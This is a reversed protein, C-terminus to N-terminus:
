AAQPFAASGDDDRTTIEELIAEAKDPPLFLRTRFSIIETFCGLSKFWDLSEVPYGRLELRQQDNVRVKHLRAGPLGGVPAGASADAAAITDCPSLRFSETIGFADLLKEMARDPVIRGLISQGGPGSVRWVRVDDEPLKNWVPLLLGTAIHITQIEHNDRESAVEAQWLAQFSDRDIEQWHSSSLAAVEIRESGTPRILRWVPVLNGDEDLTPWSPVRLAIRKSRKNRLFAMDSSSEWMRMLPEFGTPHRRIHLKLTQLRTEAGTRPDRRLPRDDLIHIEEAVITEVGQDLTGAQRAAEVRAEILSNFEDFIAHQTAIRLALLRNLWRHIPPLRELLAGSDPDTLTLGTMATFESMTTSTLKGKHLRHYWNVLAERAHDSELNDASSFFHRSGAQRQGQTLAGLSDLKRAIPAIFRREGPCDTFVPRFKPATTQNSRHERGNRQLFAPANWGPETGFAVRRKGASKRGREAHLSIGVGGANTLVLIDKEADMFANVEAITARASRTQLKQRGDADLVIRRSRGSVEAVRDAGFHHIIADLAWPVPPMACLREILTERARIADTCLVPQGQADVMMESRLEGNKLRVPRMMRTPFANRLYDIMNERPSLDLDLNAREEADLEALRRNLVAEGTTVLDVVAANGAAIEEEIGAILTPLKMSILLQSFFRQKASEFRSLAAGRARGNLTKGTMRDVVNAAKFAEQLNAHIIAWADAYSDYIRIQEPTLEHIIPDFEVGEYSLSRATYLGLAKADRAVVEMAAVGGHDMAKMFADRDRFATGPGWLGLRVAYCLNAPDTAGTASSLLVRARPLANQLRVGALGQESGKSVGFDTETGAANGLAHAEDIAIIGDFDEGLWDLLQILRSKKQDQASRLTAFSLFLIGSSLTIPSGLPFADLGVIDAPAGGLASWATKADEALRPNFSIWVHRRRGRWWQDMMCASIERGKGVGTGDGIFFGQRYARGNADEVLMDGAPNQRFRGPLDREFAEGAYIVAELQADSLADHATKPLQPRYSPVPPLVSAMAMTEVLKSPHPRANPLDIRALRWATYIGVTEGVGRPEGRVAYDIPALSTDVAEIAPPEIRPPRNTKNFLSLASRRTCAPREPLMPTTPAPPTPGPGLRDPLALIHPLADTLRNATIRYPSGSWGKDFILIRIRTSTGHKAYVDGLIDIEVRPCAVERVAEYGARGSGDASFSSPLIAVCRGGPQLRVLASRLHRAGAHRDRGIGDSRSFPPNILVVTPRVSGPLCDDILAGDHTTVKHRTIRALLGARQPDRENLYLVAGARLALPLLMGTGASPELVNDDDRIRAALAALWALAAPTSFQQLDVQQESRYTQTPLSRELDTLVALISQPDPLNLPSTDASRLFLVQAAELADYADRMSWVGFRNHKGFAEEMFRTLRQRSLSGSQRIHEALRVAVSHLTADKSAASDAPADAGPVLSLTM